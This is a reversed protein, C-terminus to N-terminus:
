RRKVRNFAFNIIRLFDPRRYQDFFGEYATELETKYRRIYVFENGNKLYDNIVFKKASFSKGVGREGICFNLLANYSLTKTLDWFMYYIMGLIIATTLGRLEFPVLRLRVRRM